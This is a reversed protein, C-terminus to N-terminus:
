RCTQSHNLFLQNTITTAAVATTSSSGCHVAIGISAPRILASAVSRLVLCPHGSTAGFCIGPLAPLHRCFQIINQLCYHCPTTKETLHTVRDPHSTSLHLSALLTPPTSPYFPEPPSPFRLFRSLRRCRQSLPWLRAPPDASPAPPELFGHTLTSVQQSTVKLAAPVAGGASSAVQWWWKRGQAM